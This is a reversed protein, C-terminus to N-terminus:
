DKVDLDDILIFARGQKQYFKRIYENRLQIDLEVTVPIVEKMGIAKLEAILKPHNERRTGIYVPYEVNLGKQILKVPIGDIICDNEKWSDVLYSDVRVEPYLYELYVKLTQARSHAGAIYIRRMSMVVEYYIGKKCSSNEM